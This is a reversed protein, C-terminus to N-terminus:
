NKMLDEVVHKIKDKSQFGVLTKKLKGDKYFCLTPMASVNHASVIEGFEDNDVDVKLVSFDELEESLQTLPTKLMQCPGCWTAYFDVLVVKTMNVKSHFSSADQLEKM